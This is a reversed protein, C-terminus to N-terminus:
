HRSGCSVELAAQTLALHAARITEGVLQTRHECTRGTAPTSQRQQAAGAARVEGCGVHPENTGPSCGPRRRAAPSAGRHLWRRCRATRSQIGRAPRPCCPRSPGIPRGLLPEVLESGVHRNVLGVASRLVRRRWGSSARRSHCRQPDPWRWRGCTGTATPNDHPSREDSGIPHGNQEFCRPGGLQRRRDSVGVAEGLPLTHDRLQHRVTQAVASIASRNCREAYVTCSWRFVIKSLDAVPERPQARPWARSRGSRVRPDTRVRDENCTLVRRLGPDARRRPDFGAQGPGLQDWRGSTTVGTGRSMPFASVPYLRGGRRAGARLHGPEGAGDAGSRDDDPRTPIRILNFTFCRDDDPLQLLPSRSPTAASRPSLVVQGFTGLDAPTLGPRSPERRRGGGTRRRRVHHAVPAPQFWQGNGRLLREWRRSGTSTPSTPRGLQDGGGPAEDSLGALLAGDDPAEGDASFAAGAAGPPVVVREPGPVVAGQVTDFRGDADLLRQTTWCAGRSGPLVAPLRRAQHRRRYSPSRPGSSSRWRASARGSPTSCAAAECDPSCVIRAGRGRHRGGARPRQREPRRTALPRPGSVASSSRAASRCISTTPSCRRPLPRQPLTARSCRAGPQAGVAVDVRDGEVGPRRDAVVSLDVVVGDAVQGHGYVSHHRGQTAVGRRGGTPPGPSSPPSTM